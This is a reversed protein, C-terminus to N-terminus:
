RLKRIQVAIINATNLPPFPIDAQQVDHRQCASKADPRHVQDIRNSSHHVQSDYNSDMGLRALPFM